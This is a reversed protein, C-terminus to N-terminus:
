EVIVTAYNKTRPGGNVGFQLEISTTGGSRGVQVRFEGRQSFEYGTYYPAEGGYKEDDEVLTVKELVTVSPHPLDLKANGIGATGLFRPILLRDNVKLRKKEQDNASIIQNM